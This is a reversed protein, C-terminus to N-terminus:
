RYGLAELEEFIRDPYDGVIGDSGLEVTRRIKDRDNVTWVHVKVGKQKMFEIFGKSIIAYPIQIADYKPKLTWGFGLGYAFTANTVESITASTYVAGESISRFHNIVGNHQSAVVVSGQLNYEKIISWLANALQDDNVKMEINLRTDPFLSILEPLTLFKLGTNRYPYTLGGDDTFMYGADLDKIEDLTLDKIQNTVGATEKLDPDHNIVLHGDSSLHVDLEFIDTGMDLAIQFALKTSEPYTGSAGRHALIQPCPCDFSDVAYVSLNTLLLLLIFYPTCLLVKKM